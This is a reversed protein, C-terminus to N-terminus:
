DCIDQIGQSRDVIVALQRSGDQVYAAATVPYYNGAVPETVNLKWTPRANRERKVMHRGNSDTFFETGSQIAPTYYELVVEKGLNDQVPVPGVTWEM